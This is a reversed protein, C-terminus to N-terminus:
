PEMPAAPMQVGAAQMAQRMEKETIAKAVFTKLNEYQMKEDDDFYNEKMNATVFQKFRNMALTCKEQVAQLKQYIQLHEHLNVMKLANTTKGHKENLHVGLARLQELPLATIAANVSVSPADMVQTCVNHASGFANADQPAVRQM